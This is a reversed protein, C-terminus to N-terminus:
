ADTTQNELFDAQEVKQELEATLADVKKQLKANQTRQEEIEFKSREVVLKEERAVNLLTLSYNILNM